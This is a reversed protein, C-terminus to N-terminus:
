QCSDISEARDGRDEHTRAIDLYLVLVFTVHLIKTTFSVLHSAKNPHLFSIDLYM